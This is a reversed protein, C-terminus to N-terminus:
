FKSVIKELVEMGQDIHQKEITLAPRFRITQHGCGLFMVNNEMGKNLFNDRMEKSPFDFASILGKGRVNSVVEYKAAIQHLSDQLYAGTSTANALLHDEEIIEMVKASRVMDVLNGGWTSNIRSSVRFVNTGIEDVKNGVLAKKTWDNNYMWYLEAFFNDAKRKSLQSPNFWKCGDELLTSKYLVPLKRIAAAVDSASLFAYVDATDAHVDATRRYM